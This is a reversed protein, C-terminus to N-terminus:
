SGSPARNPRIHYTGDPHRTVMSALEMELLAGFVYGLDLHAVSALEGARIPQHRALAQYCPELHAPVKQAGGNEVDTQEPFLDHPDVLPIAGDFLLRNVGRSARSTIPGPVAYVDRGLDLACQATILAGSRDGAQVVIVAQSLAAILRNREPFHHKRVPTGPPYESVLTGTSAIQHYLRRNSPPYCRDIGCGLVSVTDGGVELAAAHATADIGMALGSVVVAGRRAIEGAIWRAAEMGYSTMRRTGVMGFVVREPSLCEKRGRVFLVLPPDPLDSLRRPYDDAGHVLVWIGRHEFQSKIRYASPEARRWADLRSAQAADLGGCAVWDAVPAEHFARIGGFARVLRRLTSPALGPCLSWVLALEDDGM